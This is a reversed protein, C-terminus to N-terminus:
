VTLDLINAQDLDANGLDRNIASAIYPISMPDYGMLKAAYADTLVPETGVILKQTLQVDELNGGVPGNRLLVRYADIVTLDPNIFNTLDALKLGIDTHINGRSGSCIGMLNKMSLTLGTLRHHKMIPVNIFTDCELAERFVPWNEMPSQYAFKAQCVNWPSPFFINAKHEKAIKQIGSNDYCRKADNCCNDFINVRKAGAQFCLDILAAIVDPNTNAAQEPTRDWAINPKILVTSNPKVFHEMGGIAQIAKLTLQYPDSGSAAVLDYATKINKKIRGTSDAPLALAAKAIISETVLLSAGSCLLKLFEKRSIKKQFISDFKM